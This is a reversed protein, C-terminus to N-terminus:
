AEPRGPSDARGRARLQLFEEAEVQAGQGDQADAQGQEDEPVQGGPGSVQTSVVGVEADQGPGGQRRETGRRDVGEAVGGPEQPGEEQDGGKKGESEQDAELRANGAEDGPEEKEGQM